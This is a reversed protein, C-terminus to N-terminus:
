FLEEIWEPPNKGANEWLETLVEKCSRLAIIYGKRVGPDLDLTHILTEKWGKVTPSFGKHLAAQFARDSLFTSILENHDRNRNNDM